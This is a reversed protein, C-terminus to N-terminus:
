PSSGADACKVPVCIKWSGVRSATVTVVELRGGGEGGGAEKRGGKGSTKRHLSLDQKPKLSISVAFSLSIYDLPTGLLDSGCVSKLIVVVKLLFEGKQALCDCIM